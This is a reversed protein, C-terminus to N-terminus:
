ETIRRGSPIEETKVSQGLGIIPVHRRLAFKVCGRNGAGGQRSFDPALFFKEM